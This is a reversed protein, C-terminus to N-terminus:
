LEIDFELMVPCGSISKWLMISQDTAQVYVLYREIGHLALGREDLQIDVITYPGIQNHLKYALGNKPDSGVVIKRIINSHNM